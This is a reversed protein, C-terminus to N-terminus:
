SPQGDRVHVSDGFRNMADAQIAYATLAGALASAERPSLQLEISANPYDAVEVKLSTAYRQRGQMSTDPLQFIDVHLSVGVDSSPKFTDM